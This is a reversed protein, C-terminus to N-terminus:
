FGKAAGKIQGFVSIGVGILSVAVFVTLLPNSIMLDWVKGVMTTVTATAAIISDM